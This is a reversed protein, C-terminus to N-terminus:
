DTGHSGLSWSAISSIQVRMLPMTQHEGPTFILVNKLHLFRQAPTPLDVSKRREYTERSKEFRFNTLKELGDALVTGGDGLATAERIQAVYLEGWKERPIASGMVLVGDVILSIGINNDKGGPVEITLSLLDELLLDHAILDKRRARDPDIKRSWKPKDPEAEPVPADETM